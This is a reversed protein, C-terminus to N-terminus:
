TRRAIWCKHWHRGRMVQKLNKPCSMRKNQVARSSSDSTSTLDRLGPSRDVDTRRCYVWSYGESIVLQDIGAYVDRVWEVRRLEAELERVRAKLGM